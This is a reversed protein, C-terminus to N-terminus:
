PLSECAIGDNDGDLRHVDGRGQSMCYDHCNQAQSHTSFDACNYINGSCSCVAAGGGDGGTTNGGSSPPSTPQPPATPWPTPTPKWMGVKSSRAQGEANVFVTQCSDDPPYNAASAFGQQVLELNVFTNGVIVYRLLRDYRDTESVDKVLTVWKWSVLDSNKNTAYVGYYEDKEPTDIGIYRVTYIEDNVKVEITDGDIVRTVLALERKTSEPICGLDDITPVTVTSTPTITATPTITPTHTITPTPTDSPTLTITPTPTISPTLTVTYTPTYTPTLTLTITPTLTPTSTATPISDVIIAGVSGALALGQCLFGLMIIGPIILLSIRGKLERPLEVLDFIHKLFNLLTVASYRELVERVEVEQTKLHVKRDRARRESKDNEAHHQVAKERIAEVDEALLDKEQQEEQAVANKSNQYKQAIREDQEVPLELPQTQKLDREVEWRWDVVSQAKAEGFGSVQMVRSLSVDKASRIGAVVLRQKLKPGVGSIQATEITTSKLGGVLHQEQLHKLVLEREENEQEQLKRVRGQYKALLQEHKSKRLRIATQEDKSIQDRMQQCRSMQSDVRKEEKIIQGFESLHRHKQKVQPIARYRIYIFIAVAVILLIAILSFVLPLQRAGRNSILLFLLSLFVAAIQFWFVYRIVKKEKSFDKELNM